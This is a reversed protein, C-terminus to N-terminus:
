DDKDECEEKCQRCFKVTHRISCDSPFACLYYDFLKIAEKGCRWCKPDDPNDIM